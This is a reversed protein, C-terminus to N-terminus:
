SFAQANVQTSVTDISSWSLADVLKRMQHKNNETCNKTIDSGVSMCNLQGARATWNGQGQLFEDRWVQHPMFVCDWIWLPDSHLHQTISELKHSTWLVYTYVYSFQTNNMSSSQPATTLWYCGKWGYRWAGLISIHTRLWTNCRQVRFCPKKGM